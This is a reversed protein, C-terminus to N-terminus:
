EIIVFVDGAWSYTSVIHMFMHAGEYVYGWDVKKYTEAESDWVVVLDRTPYKSSRTVILKNKMIDGTALHDGQLLLGFEDVKAVTGSIAADWNQGESDSSDITRDDKLDDGKSIVVFGTVEQTLADINYQIIDGVELDFFNITDAKYYAGATGPNDRFSNTLDDNSTKLTMTIPDEAQKHSYAQYVTMPEGEDSLVIKKDFICATPSSSWDVNAQTKISADIIIYQAVGAETIDYAQFDKFTKESNMGFMNEAVGSSCMKINDSIIYVMTTDPIWRVYDHTSETGPYVTNCKLYERQTTYAITAPDVGNDVYLQTYDKSDYNLMFLDDNRDERDASKQALILKKLKDGELEYKILQRGSRDFADKIIQYAKDASYSVFTKGGTSLQINDEITYETLSNTAYINIAARSELGGTSMVGHLIGIKTEDTAEAKVITDNIDLYFTAYVGLFSNLNVGTYIGYEYDDIVAKNESTIETITGEFNNTAMIITRLKKDKTEAVTIVTDNDLINFDVRNLASNLLVNTCDSDKLNFFQIGENNEEVFIKDALVSTTIYNKYDWVKVVDYKDDGNNEILEIKGYAPMVDAKEPGIIQVGNYSYFAYADIKYSKVKDNEEYCIESTSTNRHIDESYVTKKINSASIVFEVQEDENLYYYVNMGLYDKKSLSNYRYNKYDIKITGESMPEKGYISGSETAHVVGEFRRLGFIQYLLPDGEAYKASVEGTKGDTEVANPILQNEHLLNYVLRYADGKTFDADSTVGKLLDTKQAASLYGISFAGTVDAYPKYGLAVVGMKMFENYTVPSDPRFTGDSNGNIIGKQWLFYISKASAHDAEVDSFTKEVTVADSNMGLAEALMVAAEARTLTGNVASVNVGSVGINTLFEAETTYDEAGLVSPSAMPILLMTCIIILSIIYKLRNKM